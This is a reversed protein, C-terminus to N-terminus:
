KSDMFKGQQCPRLVSATGDISYCMGSGTIAARKPGPHPTAPGKEKGERNRGVVMFQYIHMSADVAIKRGFYTEFKQERVCEHAQLILACKCPCQVQVNLPKLGYM